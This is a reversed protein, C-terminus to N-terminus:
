DGIYVIHTFTQGDKFVGRSDYLTFTFKLARPFSPKETVLNPPIASGGFYYVGNAGLYSSWNTVSSPAVTNFYFGFANRGMGSPGFDSNAPIGNNAPDISPWWYYDSIPPAPLIQHKYEYVWQVAFSGVKEAMLLHLTNANALNVTPRNNSFAAAANGFCGTIINDVTAPGNIPDNVAAQWQSLSNTDHELWDNQVPNSTAPITLIGNTNIPFEAYRNGSDPNAISLHQRRSLVRNYPQINFPDNLNYNNNPDISRAHGYYIRALNSVVPSGSSQPIIYGIYPGPNTNVDYTQISQFDGDAFFMIQDLRKNHDNPDLQFWMFLPADKRIGRFDNNLQDTIARFKQMIESQATAVRYSAISAKFVVGAFVVVMAMVGIAVVLEILTFGKGGRLCSSVFFKIKNKKVV